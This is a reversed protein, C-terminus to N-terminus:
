KIDRSEETALDFGAARLRRLIHRMMPESQAGSIRLQDGDLAVDVGKVMEESEIEHRSFRESLLILRQNGSGRWLLDSSYRHALFPGDVLLDAAALLESSGPPRRRLLTELVWGTYVVVSLGREQVARALISSAPAQDFPEGGMLTVGSLEPREQRIRDLEALIDDVAALVGGTQPLLEPNLCTKTCLLSCGQVWLVWREGPGNLRSVPFGTVPGALRLRPSSM